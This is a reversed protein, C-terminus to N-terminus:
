DGIVLFTLTMGNSDPQIQVSNTTGNTRADFEYGGGDSPTCLVAYIHTFPTNTWSVTNWAGVTLGSVSGVLLKPTNKKEAAGA